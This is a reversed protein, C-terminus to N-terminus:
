LSQLYAERAAALLAQQQFSQEKVMEAFKTEATIETDKPSDTLLEFPHGSEVCKGEEMVIILDTRMISKLRHAVLLVTCDKFERRITEEIILETGQDINATPEDM